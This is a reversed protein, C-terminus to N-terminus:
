SINSCQLVYFSSSRMGPCWPCPPTQRNEGDDGPLEPKTCRLARRTYTNSWKDFCKTCWKVGAKGRSSMACMPDYQSAGGKKSCTMETWQLRTSAGIWIACRGSQCRRLKDGLQYAPKKHMEDVVALGAISYSPGDRESSTL